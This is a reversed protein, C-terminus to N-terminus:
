RGASVTTSSEMLLVYFPEGKGPGRSNEGPFVNCHCVYLGCHVCVRFVESADVPCLESFTGLRAKVACSRTSAAGVDAQAFLRGGFQGVADVGVEIAEVDARGGSLNEGAIHAVVTVDGTGHQLRAAGRALGARFFTSLMGGHAAVALQAGFGASPTLVRASFKEGRQALCPSDFISLGCSERGARRARRFSRSFLASCPLGDSSGCSRRM